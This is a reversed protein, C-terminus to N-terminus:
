ALEVTSGTAQQIRQEYRNAEANMELRVAEVYEAETILGKEILLRVLAAQNVMASNVGVRLHKPSGDQSGRGHEFAVGSQMAHMAQEYTRDTRM